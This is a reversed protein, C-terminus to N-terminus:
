DSHEHQSQASWEDSRHETANVKKKKKLDKVTLINGRGYQLREQEFRCNTKLKAALNILGMDGVNMHLLHTEHM